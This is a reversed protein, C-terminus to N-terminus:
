SRSYRLLRKQPTRSELALWEGAPTYWLDIVLPEEDRPLGELRFREAHEHGTIPDRGLRTVTVPVFEGTQPNLLRRAGLIHPNWYAFTQVCGDLRGSSRGTRLLFQHDAREGAVAVRKGNTDTHADLQVLCDDQWLERARHEYRYADVFLFRVRFRAESTLERRDGRERLVFRHEGIPRDDLTVKFSWERTADASANACVCALMAAIVSTCARM